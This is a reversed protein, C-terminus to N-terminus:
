VQGVTAVAVMIAEVVEVVEVPTQHVLLDLM